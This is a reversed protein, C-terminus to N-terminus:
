CGRNLSNEGFASAKTRFYLINRLRLLFDYCLGCEDITAANTTAHSFFHYTGSKTMDGADQEGVLSAKTGIAVTKTTTSVTSAVAKAISGVSESSVVTKYSGNVLSMANDAINLYKTSTGQSIVVDNMEVHGSNQVRFKASRMAADTNASAGAWIMPLTNNVAASTGSMGAVVTGSANKVGIYKSLM